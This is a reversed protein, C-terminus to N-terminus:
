LWWPKLGWIPAVLVVALAAVGAIATQAFGLQLQTPFLLKLM